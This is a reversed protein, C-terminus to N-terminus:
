EAAGRPKWPIGHAIHEFNRPPVAEARVHLGLGLARLCSRTAGMTGARVHEISRVLTKRRHAFAAHVLERTARDPSPGTRRLQLVASEVRPPPQFVEPPVTRLLQVECCLQVLVTPAGYERTDPRARLREAIERQVMVTWYEVFPLQDITRLVLPTAISYPLNAVVSTPVPHLDRLDLRMADGWHLEVNPRAAFPALTEELRRDIEITHVHKAIAALRGTLVGEGAGIELVVDGPALKSDRVIADLLNPDALFNQGLRAM